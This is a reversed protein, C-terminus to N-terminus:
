NLFRSTTKNKQEETNRLSDQREKNKVSAYDEVKTANKNNKSDNDDNNEVEIKMPTPIEIKSYVGSIEQGSSVTLILSNGIEDKVKIFEPTIQQIVHGKYANGDKYIKVNGELDTEELLYNQGIKYVKQSSAINLKLKREELEDNHKKLEELEKNKGNNDLKDTLTANLNRLEDMTKRMGDVEVLFEQKVKNIEEEFINKQKKKEYIAKAEEFKKKTELFEIYDKMLNMNESLENRMARSNITGDYEQVFPDMVDKENHTFDTKEINKISRNFNNDMENEIKTHNIEGNRQIYEKDKALEQLGNNNKNTNTQNVNDNVGNVGNVIGNNALQNNGQVNNSNANNIQGNNMPDNINNQNNQNSIDSNALENNQNQQNNQLNSNEGDVNNSNNSANRKAEREEKMKAIREKREQDQIRAMEEDEKVTSQALEQVEKSTAEFESNDMVGSSGIINNIIPEAVVFAVGLGVVGGVGLAVKKNNKFMSTINQKQEKIEGSIGNNELEFDPNFDDSFNEDNSKTYNDDDNLFDEDEISFEKKNKKNFFKDMLGM